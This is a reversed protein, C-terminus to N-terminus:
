NELKPMTNTYMFQIEKPFQLKEAVPVTVKMGANINENTAMSVVCTKRKRAM